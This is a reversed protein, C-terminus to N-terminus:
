HLMPRRRAPDLRMGAARRAVSEAERLITMVADLGVRDAMDAARAIDRAINERTQRARAPKDNSMSALM